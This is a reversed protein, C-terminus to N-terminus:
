KFKEYWPTKIKKNVNELYKEYLFPSFEKKAFEADRLNEPTLIHQVFGTTLDLEENNVLTQYIKETLIKHNNLCLHGYRADYAKFTLRDKPDVQEMSSVHESLAGKSFKLEPFDSPEGIFQDFGFIVLPPKWGLQRATSALWGLRMKVSLNDLQSRQVYRFYDAAIKARETGIAADLDIVNPNTIDPRDEFFWFRGPSTLLVILQDDPTITPDTKDKLDHLIRWNFDQSCGWLSVNVIELNLRKAIDVHWVNENQDAPMVYTFSDGTIFLRSM